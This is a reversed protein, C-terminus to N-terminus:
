MWDEQGTDELISLYSEYRSLAIHGQELAELVACGPENTHMCDNFRCHEMQEVIEPFYHGVEERELDVIGFERIGPTDVIWGGFELPHMTAFTTTHMGKGTAESVERVKIGLEEDLANALSSKGVGSHGVLLTSKDKLAEKLPELGQGFKASILYCPHGLSEYLEQLAAQRGLEQESLRDSKNFILSAPIHYTRANVLFRDIFGLSTRPESLTVLLFAQDLNVALVHQHRNSRPSRRIIQNNRNQIKTIWASQEEGEEIDFEVRDGVALPNSVLKQNKRFKGRLRAKYRNGQGDDVEYWSGTSQIVLGEM